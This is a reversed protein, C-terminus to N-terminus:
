MTSYFEILESQCAQDMATTDLKNQTNDMAMEIDTTGNIAAMSPQMAHM